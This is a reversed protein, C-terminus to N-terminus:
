AGIRRINWVSEDVSTAILGCGERCVWSILMDPAPDQRAEVLHPTCFMVPTGIHCDHTLATWEAPRDCQEHPASVLELIGGVDCAPAFSESLAATEETLEAPIVQTESM